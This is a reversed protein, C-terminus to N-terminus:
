LIYVLYQNSKSDEESRNVRLMTFANKTKLMIECRGLVVTCSKSHTKIWSETIQRHEGQTLQETNGARSGRQEHGFGAPAASRGRWLETALGPRPRGRWFPLRSVPQGRPQTSFSSLLSPFLRLSYCGLAGCPKFFFFLFNFMTKVVLPRHWRRKPKSRM